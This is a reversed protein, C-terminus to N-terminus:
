EIIYTSMAHVNQHRHSTMATNADRDAGAGQQEDDDQATVPHRTHRFQPYV